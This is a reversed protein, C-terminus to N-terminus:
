RFLRRLAWRHRTLNFTFDDGFAIRRKTRDPEQPVTRGWFYHMENGNVAGILAENQARYRDGSILIVRAQPAHMMTFMGSGGYGAIIRARAFLQVQEGYSYQEPRVIAFGHKAFFQEIAPGQRCLRRGGRTIFIKDARVPPEVDAFADRITRWTEAIAPSVYSPNEFQPDAAVLNRVDLTEDGYQTVISSRPIGYAAFLDHVFQPVRSQGPRVSVLPRIDPYEERAREWGWLRSLVETAVHGYHGPYESDLYYLPGDWTRRQEPRWRPRIVAMDDSSRLLGAHRLRPAHQHRFTDPLWYDGYSVLQRPCTQAETYHRVELAPVTFPGTTIDPGRGHSTVEARGTFTSGPHVLLRTVPSSAGYRAELVPVTETAHLMRSLTYRKTVLALDGRYSVRELSYALADLWSSWGHAAPPAPSRRVAEEIVERVSEGADAETKDGPARDIKEVALVGGAQVYGHLKRLAAVQGSTRRRLAIVLLQPHPLVSMIAGFDGKGSWPHVRVNALPEQGTGDPPPTWPGALVHVTAGPYREAFTSGLATAHARAVVVVETLPAALEDVAEEYARLHDLGDSAQPVGRRLGITDLSEETM